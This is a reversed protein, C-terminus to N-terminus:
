YGYRLKGAKKIWIAQTDVWSKEKEQLRTIAINQTEDEQRDEVM